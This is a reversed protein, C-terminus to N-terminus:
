PATPGAQVRPKYDFPYPRVQNTCRYVRVPRFPKGARMMTFELELTMSQFFPAYEKLTAATSEEDAVVFFGTKGVYDEPRSWFAFGRADFTHFCAVPVRGRVAFALQGSDYWINTFLFTQPESLLGRRDLEDAVSAWGAIDAAPDKAGPPFTIVGFKAQALVFGALAILLGTWVLPFVRASRPYRVELMTFTRAALPFLPLFGVLPWHLLVGRSFGSIIFFFLLPASALCLLFRPGEPQSRFRWLGRVLELALWFWIWPLLYLIPGGLWKLPGEHVFPTVGASSARGGQFRFSAWEHQANWVVVPTFAILGMAVALYPGPRWLLNRKGPTLLAFLVVGAPLLVAHYKSLMAGGFGIGVWAWRGLTGPQDDRRVADTAKWFTLLAFFLFPSDPLAFCGGFATHYGSLNLLAAAWSGARGGFLDAAWRYMAWTSGAFLLVFGLRLSLPHVWGGCLTLGFQEVWMTMPPHDFYSLAPHVAYLWHYSEDNSPELAASWGLRLLGTLLILLLVNRADHSM